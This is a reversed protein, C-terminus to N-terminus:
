PARSTAKRESDFARALEACRQRSVTPYIREFDRTLAVDHAAWQAPTGDRPRMAHDVLHTLWEYRESTLEGSRGLLSTTEAISNYRALPPVTKGRGAAAGCVCALAFVVIWRVALRRLETDM